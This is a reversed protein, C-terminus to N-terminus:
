RRKEGEQRAGRALTVWARGDTGPESETEYNARYTSGNHAYCDGAQAIDGEFWYGRFRIKGRAEAQLEAEIRELRSAMDGMADYAEMDLSKTVAIGDLAKVRDELAEFRKNRFEAERALERHTSSILTLILEMGYRMFRHCEGNYSYVQDSNKGSKAYQEIHQIIKASNEISQDLIEPFIEKEWEDLTPGHGGHTKAHRDNM